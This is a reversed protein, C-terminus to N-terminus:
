GAGESGAADHSHTGAQLWGCAHTNESLRGPGKSLAAKGRGARAQLQLLLSVQIETVLAGMGGTVLSKSDVAIERTFLYGACLLLSVQGSRFDAM